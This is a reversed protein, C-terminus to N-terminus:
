ENVWMEGTWIKNYEEMLVCIGAQEKTGVEIESLPDGLLVCRMYNCRADFLWWSLDSMEQLQEESPVWIPKDIDINEYIKRTGYTMEYYEPHKLLEKYDCDRVNICRRYALKDSDKWKHNKQIEEARECMKIYNKTIM